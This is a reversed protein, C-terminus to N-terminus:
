GAEAQFYVRAQDARRQAHAYIIYIELHPHYQRGTVHLQEAHVILAVWPKWRLTIPRSLGKSPM